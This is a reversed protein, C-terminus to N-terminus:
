FSGFGKLDIKSNLNDKVKFRQNDSQPNQLALVLM